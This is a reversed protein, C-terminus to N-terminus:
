VVAGQDVTMVQDAGEKLDKVGALVDANEEAAHLGYKEDVVSNMPIEKLLLLSLIGVGCIGIMTKWIVAMSNAFATRVQTRSPEPLEKILPIAAYAISLGGPFQSVFSAPLNKQLENELITSAITIGWTQAFARTFAFFALAAANREVPLPAM